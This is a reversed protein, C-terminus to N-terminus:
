TLKDPATTGDVVDQEADFYDLGFIAKNKHGSIEKDLLYKAGATYTITDRDTMWSNASFNASTDRKRRAGTFELKGLANLDTELGLETFYDRSSAVDNPSTTGRRGKPFLEADLLAGPLGYEDEHNGFSFRTKINDNIRFVAKGNIDNRILDSNVRYGDTRYQDFLAFGSLKGANFSAEINEGYTNYSGALAGPKIQFRKESPEKTIINVVGGSANDGYLVSAAGRIIEIKEVASIPIQTWDTGSLDINNVRRGDILVLVNSMGSEGFGRIDANTTKGNGIYDRVIVAGQRNLLEPITKANSRQIEAGTIVKVNGPVDALQGEMRGPTVVIRDLEISGEEAWAGSATLVAICTVALIKSRM